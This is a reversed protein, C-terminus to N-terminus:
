AAIAILRRVEDMFHSSFQEFAAEIWALTQLEKQSWIVVGWVCNGKTHCIDGFLGTGFFVKAM